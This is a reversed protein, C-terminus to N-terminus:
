WIKFITQYHNHLYPANFHIFIAMTFNLFIQGVLVYYWIYIKKYYSLQKQFKKCFFFFKCTLM